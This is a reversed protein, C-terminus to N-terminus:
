ITDELKDGGSQTVKRQVFSGIFAGLVLKALDMLQAPSEDAGTLEMGLSLFVLLVGLGATALPLGTFGLKTFLGSRGSLSAIRIYQNVGGENPKKILETLLKRDKTPIVEAGVSVARSVVWIGMLIAVLSTVLLIVAQSYQYFL